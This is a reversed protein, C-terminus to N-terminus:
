MRLHTQTLLAFQMLPLVPVKKTEFLRSFEIELDARLPVFTSVIDDGMSSDTTTDQRSRSVPDRLWATQVQMKHTTALAEILFRTQSGEGSIEETLDVYPMAENIVGNEDTNYPLMFNLYLAFGDPKTESEAILKSIEQEWDPEVIDPTDQSM